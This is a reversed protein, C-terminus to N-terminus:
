IRRCFIFIEFCADIKGVEFAIDTDSYCSFNYMHLLIFTLREKKETKELIQAFFEFYFRIFDLISWIIHPHHM